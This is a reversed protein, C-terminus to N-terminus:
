RSSRSSKSSKQFRKEVELGILLAVGCIIVTDAINFIPFTGIRIYDIVGGHVVRDIGNSAVGATILALSFYALGTEQQSAYVLLALAAVSILVMAVNAGPLFGFTIGSNITHTYIGIPTQLQTSGIKLAQDLVFAITAITIAVTKKM